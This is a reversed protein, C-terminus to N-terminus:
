TVLKSDRRGALRHRELAYLVSDKGYANVNREYILGLKEMVRISAANETAAVAIVRDLGLEGFAFRLSALGAETAYGHGWYPRGLRWGVEVDPGVSEFLQLGADGIVEGTSRLEATFLSFGHEAQHALDRAIAEEVENRKRPRGSLYRAYEPDARIAALADLDALTKPRLLLRETRLPLPV